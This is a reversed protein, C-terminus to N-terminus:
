GQLQAPEPNMEEQPLCPIRLEGHSRIKTPIVTEEPACVFPERVLNDGQKM